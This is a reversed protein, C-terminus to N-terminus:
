KMDNDSTEIDSILITPPVLTYDGALCNHTIRAYSEKIKTFTEESVLHEMRCSDRHAIKEDVNLIEILYREIVAHRELISNAYNVGDETLILNHNADMNVFGEKRLKKMAVSVSPKSIGLENAVDISRVEGLKKQLILLTKLYNEASENM